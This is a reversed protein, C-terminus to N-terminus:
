EAVYKIDDLYFTMTHGIGGFVFGFGTKICSLDRDELPIIYKKWETTLVIDKVEARDSDSYPANKIGGVFFTVKENGYKGRAWFELVGAKSLNFGGPQNGWDNAPNQWQVGCWNDVATYKVKICTNGSHPNESSDTEMKLAGTNGMFGSPYWRVHAGDAYVDVPMTLPKMVRAPAKGEGKIPANAYAANGKGDFCYAYLRYKGGGPLKVEVSTTGQGKVIADPFGEPMAAGTGTVGYDGAEEVLVWKWTLKDGDPDEAKVSAKVIEGVGPKETSLTVKSILPCRNKLERGTWCYSLRETAGLITNDPLLMGYWTPTSEVKYGWTFAYIGLCLKGKDEKIIKKYTDEYWTAKETSTLEIPCGISNHVWYEHHLPPGYETIIYPKTGGHKRWREPISPSGAYTNIGVIDIDPCYQHIERVNNEPIEAIVTMTPHNPDIAKVKKALDNIHKWMEVRHPNGMEMENGLAWVLLAPHDKVERVVRLIDQEQKKLQEQNTYDFGHQAHGLWFGITLTLGNKHANDLEQKAKEAGWTRNSNGGLKKLLEAPGGGGAGKIFYPQGNRSLHYEGNRGEIKVVSGAFLATTMSMLVILGKKM